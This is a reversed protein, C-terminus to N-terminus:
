EWWTGNYQSIDSNVLYISIDSKKYKRISPSIKNYTYLLAQHKKKRSYCVNKFNETYLNWQLEEILLSTKGHPCLSPYLKAPIQKKKLQKVFSRYIIKSFDTEFVHVRNLFINMYFLDRTVKLRLLFFILSRLFHSCSNNFLSWPVGQRANLWIPPRYIFPTPTTHINQPGKQYTCVRTFEASIFERRSTASIDFKGTISGVFSAENHPKEGRLSM